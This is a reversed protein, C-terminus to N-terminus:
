HGVLDSARVVIVGPREFQQARYMRAAVEQIRKRHRRFVQELLEPREAQLLDIAALAEKVVGCRVLLPGRTAFFWVVGATADYIARNPRFTLSTLVEGAKPSRDPPRSTRSSSHSKSM